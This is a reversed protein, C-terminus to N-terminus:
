NPAVGTSEARKREWYASQKAAIKARTEPTQPGRSKAPKTRPKKVKMYARREQADPLNPDYYAKLGASVNASHEPSLPGKLKGPGRPGTGKGKRGKSIATRREESYPGRLRHDGPRGKNSAGIKANHADSHPGRSRVETTVKELWDKSYPGDEQLHLAKMRQSAKEKYEVSRPGLVAGAGGEGGDTLNALYGTKKNIRGLRAIQEVEWSCAKVWTMEEVVVSVELRTFGLRISKNFIRQLIVNYHEGAKLGKAHEFPRGKHGIGVYAVTFPAYPRVLYYGVYKKGM